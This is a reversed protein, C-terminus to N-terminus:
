TRPISLATACRIRVAAARSRLEAAVVGGAGAGHRRDASRRSRHQVAHLRQRARDRLRDTQVIFRAPAHAQTARNFESQDFSFGGVMAHVRGTFPDMAVIAGSIEPVPAPADPGAQRGDREVYVVDGVSCSSDGRAPADMERRRATVTGFERDKVLQGSSDRKPQLGVKAQGGAVELVVAMRWPQVDALAPVEALALGWERGTLELKPQAGRWGRAEDYRVLGDVLAKRAMAQMKPDLTARISLGGEYLKQEGYREAIERRVEEAFYGPRSATRSFRLAPQRRAAGEQGEGDERTVYGNEVM